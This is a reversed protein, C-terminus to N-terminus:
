RMACSQIIKFLHVDNIAKSSFEFNGTDTDPMESVNSISKPNLVWFGQTNISCAHVFFFLFFSYTFFSVTFNV